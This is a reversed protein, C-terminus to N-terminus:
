AGEKYIQKCNQNIEKVEPNKSLFDLVDNLSFEPNEPHLSEYIKRTVELDEPYDLTLRLTPFYQDEESHYNKLRYKGDDNRCIFTTVHERDHKQSSLNECEKLLDLHFVQSRVGIPHSRTLTNSVYDCDGEFYLEVTEDIVDPDVFPSDGTLEVVLDTEMFEHAEVLRKLVDDESGRFCKIGNKNAFDAIPDDVTEM